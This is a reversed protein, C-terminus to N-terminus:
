GRKKKNVTHQTTSDSGPQLPLLLTSFCFLFFYRKTSMTDHKTRKRRDREFCLFFLFFFSAHIHTLVRVICWIFLYSLSILFFTSWRM